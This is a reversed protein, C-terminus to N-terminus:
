LQVGESLVKQIRAHVPGLPLLLMLKPDVNHEISLLVLQVFIDREARMQSIEHQSSTLKKMVECTVFTKLKNCKIPNHFGISKLVSSNQCVLSM